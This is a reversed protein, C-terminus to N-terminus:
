CHRSISRFATSSCAIRDLAETTPYSPYAKLFRILDPQTNSM